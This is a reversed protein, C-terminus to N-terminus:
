KKWLSHLWVNLLPALSKTRGIRHTEHSILDFKGKKERNKQRTGIRVFSIFLNIGFGIYDCLSEPLFTLNLPFNEPNGSEDM